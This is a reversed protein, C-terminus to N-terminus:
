MVMSSLYRSCFGVFIVEKLVFFFFFFIGESTYATYYIVDLDSVDSFLKV